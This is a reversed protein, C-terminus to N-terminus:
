DRPGMEIIMVFGRERNFHMAFLLVEWAPWKVRSDCAEAKEEHLFQHILENVM